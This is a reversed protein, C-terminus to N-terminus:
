NHCVVGSCGGTGAGSWASCVKVGGVCFKCCRHGKGDQHECFSATCAQARTSPLLAELVTSGIRGIARLM